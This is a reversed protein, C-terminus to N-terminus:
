STAGVLKIVRQEIGKVVKRWEGATIIRPVMDFPILREEGADDGYVNFTIGTKRFFGEAEQGKRRMLGADQRNYWQCFGEYAARVSGDPKLMEDFCPPTETM